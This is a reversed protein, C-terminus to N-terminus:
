RGKMYALVAEKVDKTSRAGTVDIGRLDVYFKVDEKTWESVPTEELERAKDEEMASPKSGTDAANTSTQKAGRPPLESWGARAFRDAASNPVKITKSGKRMMKM